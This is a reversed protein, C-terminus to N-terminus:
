SNNTYPFSSALLNKRQEKGYGASFSAFKTFYAITVPGVVVPTACDKGLAAVGRKFGVLFPSFDAALLEKTDCAPVMYHYNSAIWKKM